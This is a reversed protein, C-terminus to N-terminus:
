IKYWKMKSEDFLFYFPIYYPCFYINDFAFASNEYM